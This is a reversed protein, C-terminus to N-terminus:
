GVGESESNTDAGAEVAPDGETKKKGGFPAKGKGAGKGKGKDAGAEVAPKVTEVSVSEVEVIKWGLRKVHDELADPHVFINQEGEKSVEILESM